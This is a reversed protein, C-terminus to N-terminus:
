PLFLIYRLYGVQIAETYSKAAEKAEKVGKIKRGDFIQKLDASQQPKM